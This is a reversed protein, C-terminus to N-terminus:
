LGGSLPHSLSSRVILAHMCVVACCRGLKQEAWTNFVTETEELHPNIEGGPKKPLLELINPLRLKSAHRYLM